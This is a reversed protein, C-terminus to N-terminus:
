SYGVMRWLSMNARCCHIGASGEACAMKCGQFATHRTSIGVRGAPCENKITDVNSFWYAHSRVAWMLQLYTTIPATKSALKIAGAESIQRKKQAMPWKDTPM